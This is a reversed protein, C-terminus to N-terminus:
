SAEQKFLCDLYTRSLPHSRESDTENQLLFLSLAGTVAKDLSKGPHAEIYSNLSEWVHDPVECFFVKSM